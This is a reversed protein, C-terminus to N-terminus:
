AVNIAWVNEKNIYADSIAYLVATGSKDRIPTKEFDPEFMRFTDGKKLYEFDCMVWETGKLVEVHRNM